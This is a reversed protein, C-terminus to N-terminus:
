VLNMSLIQLFKVNTYITTCMLGLSAKLVNMQQAQGVIQNAGEATLNAPLFRCKLPVTFISSGFFIINIIRDNM